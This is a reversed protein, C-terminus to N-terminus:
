NNGRDLQWCNMHSGQNLGYKTDCAALAAGVVTDTGGITVTQFAAGAETDEASITSCDWTESAGFAITPSSQTLSPTTANVETYGFSNADFTQRDLTDGNWAETITENQAWCSGGSTTCAEAEATTPTSGQASKNRTILNAKISGDGAAISAMNGPSSNLLQVIGFITNSQYNAYGCTGSQCSWSGTGEFHQFANLKFSNSYEDIVVKGYGTNANGSWNGQNWFISTLQKSVFDKGSIVGSVSFDNKFTNTNVGATFSGIHKVVMNVATGSITTRIYGQQVTPATMDMCEFMEFETVLGASKVIKFKVKGSGGNEAITFYNYASGSTNIATTLGADAANDMIAGIYCKIKDPTVANQYTEKLMNLAECAARSPTTAGTVDSYGVDKLVKGTTALKIIMDLAEAKKASTYEDGGYGSQVPSTAGPLDSVSSISSSPVGAPASSSGKSCGYLILSASLSILFSVIFLNNM